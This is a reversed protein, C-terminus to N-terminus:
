RADEGQGSKNMSAMVYQTGDTTTSATYGFHVGITTTLVQESQHQRYINMFAVGCVRCYSATPIVDGQRVEEINEDRCRRRGM